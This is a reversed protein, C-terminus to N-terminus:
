QDEVWRIPRGSEKNTKWGGSQYTVCRILRGSVLKAMWGMENTKRRGSKDEVWRM